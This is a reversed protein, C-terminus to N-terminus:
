PGGPDEGAGELGGTVLGGVDFGGADLGGGDLGGTEFGGTEFGGAGPPPVATGVRVMTEGAAVMTEVEADLWIKLPVAEPPPPIATTFHLSPKPLEPTAEPVLEQDTM